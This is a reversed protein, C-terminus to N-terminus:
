PVAIGAVAQGPEAQRLHHRQPQRPQAQGQGRLPFPALRGGGRLRPHGLQRGQAVPGALLAVELRELFEGGRGRAVLDVGRGLEAREVVRQGGGIERLLRRGVVEGPGSGEISGAGRRAVEQRDRAQGVHEEIRGVGVAIELPAAAEGLGPHVVRLREVARDGALLADGDLEGFAIDLGLAAQRLIGDPRALQHGGHQPALVLRGDVGEDVIEAHLARGQHRPDLAM